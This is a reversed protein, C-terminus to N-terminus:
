LQHDCTTNSFHNSVEKLEPKIYFEIVVLVVDLLIKPNLQTTLEV